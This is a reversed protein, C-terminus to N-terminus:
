MRLQTKSEGAGGQAGRQADRQADREEPNEEARRRAVEAEERKKLMERLYEHFKDEAKDNRKVLRMFEGWDSEHIRQEESNWWPKQPLGNLYFSEDGYISVYIRSEQETPPNVYKVALAPEYPHDRNWGTMKLKNYYWKGRKYDSQGITGKPRMYGLRGIEGDYVEERQIRSNYKGYIVYDEDYYERDRRVRAVTYTPKRRAYM